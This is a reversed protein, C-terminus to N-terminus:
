SYSNTAHNATAICSLGLAEDRKGVIRSSGWELRGYASAQRKLYLGVAIALAAVLALYLGPIAPRHTTRM